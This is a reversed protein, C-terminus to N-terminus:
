RKHIKQLQQIQGKVGAELDLPTMVSFDRIERIIAELSPFIFVAGKNMMPTQFTFIIQLFVHGTFRQLHQIQGKVGGEHDNPTMVSFIGSIERIMPRLAQFYTFLRYLTM